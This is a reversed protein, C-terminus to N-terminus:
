GEKGFLPKFVLFFFGAKFFPSLPSKLDVEAAAMTQVQEVFKQTVM